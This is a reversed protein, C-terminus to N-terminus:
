GALRSRLRRLAGPDAGADRLYAEPGGLERLRRLAVLMADPPSELLRARLRHEVPDGAAEDVWDRFLVAVNPGSLAYDAAVEADGVGALTLLLAAVLGTRDKGAACHVIVPGEADAVAMVATALAGARQELTSVYLKGFWRGPEGDHKLRAEFAEEKAPDREGFLSVAVVEVDAQLEPEGPEEGPFRLDVIRRVGLRRAQEWGQETLRRPNDARVVVGPRTSRSRSVPLHGLDRVNTCGEWALLRASM